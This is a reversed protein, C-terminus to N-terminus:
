TCDGIGQDKRPDLTLQKGNAVILIIEKAQTFARGHRGMPHISLDFTKSLHAMCEKLHAELQKIGFDQYTHLYRLTLFSGSILAM